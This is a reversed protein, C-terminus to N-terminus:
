RMLEMRNEMPTQRRTEEAYMREVIARGECVCDTKVYVIDFVGKFIVSGRTNRRWNVREISCVDSTNGSTPTGATTYAPDITDRPENKAPNPTHSARDYSSRHHARL